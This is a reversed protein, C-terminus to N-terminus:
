SSPTTEGPKGGPESHEHYLCKDLKVYEERGILRRKGDPVELSIMVDLVFDLNLHVKQGKLTVFPTTLVFTDVHLKRLISSEPTNEYIYQTLGLNGVWTLAMRTILLDIAENKLEPVGRVDRFVYIKCLLRASLPVVHSKLSRAISLKVPSSLPDHLRHTYIWTYLAQFM